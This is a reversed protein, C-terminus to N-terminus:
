VRLDQAFHCPSGPNKEGFTVGINNKIGPASIHSRERAWAMWSSENKSSFAAGQHSDEQRPQNASYKKLFFFITFSNILFEKNKAVFSAYIKM